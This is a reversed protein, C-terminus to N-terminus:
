FFKVSDVLIAMPRHHPLTSLRHSSSSPSASLFVFVFVSVVPPVNESIYSALLVNNSQLRFLAINTATEIVNIVSFVEYQVTFAEKGQQQVKSLDLFDNTL